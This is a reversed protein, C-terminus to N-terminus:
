NDYSLSNDKKKIEWDAPSLGTIVSVATESSSGLKGVDVGDM